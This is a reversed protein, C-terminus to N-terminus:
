LQEYKNGLGSLKIDLYYIPSDKDIGKFVRTSMLTVDGVTEMKVVGKSALESIANVGRTFYLVLESRTLKSDSEAEFKNKYKADCSSEGHDKM